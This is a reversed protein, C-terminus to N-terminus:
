IVRRKHRRLSLSLSLSLKPSVRPMFLSIEGPGREVNGSGPWHAVGGIVSLSQCLRETLMMNGLRLSILDCQSPV